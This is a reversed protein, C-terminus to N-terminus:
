LFATLEAPCEVPEGRLLEHHEGDTFPAIDVFAKQKHMFSAEMEGVCIISVSISIVRLGIVSVTYGSPAFMHKRDRNLKKSVAPYVYQFVALDCEQQYQCKQLCFGRVALESDVSFLPNQIESKTAVGVLRVQHQLPQPEGSDRAAVALVSAFTGSM